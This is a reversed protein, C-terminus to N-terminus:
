NGSSTLSLPGSLQCSNHPRAWVSPFTPTPNRGSLPRFLPGAPHCSGLRHPLHRKCCHLPVPLLLPAARNLRIPVRFFFLLKNQQWGCKFSISGKRVVMDTSNLAICFDFCSCLLYNIFVRCLMFQPIVTCAITVLLCIHQRFLAKHCDINNLNVM